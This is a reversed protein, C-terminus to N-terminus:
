LIYYTAGLHCGINAGKRECTVGKWSAPRIVCHFSFPTQMPLVIKLPVLYPYQVSSSQATRAASRAIITAGIHVLSSTDRCVEPISAQPPILAPAPALHLTHSTSIGGTICNQLLPKGKKRKTRKLFTSLLSMSSKTTSDM